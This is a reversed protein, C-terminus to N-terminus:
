DITYGGGRITRIIKKDTFSSLKERLRNIYVAVMNGDKNAGSIEELRKRPVANGKKRWLEGLILNETATLELLKGYIIVGGDTFSLAFKGGTGGNKENADLGHLLEYVTNKYQIIPFPRTLVYKAYGSDEDDTDKIFIIRDSNPYGRRLADNDLVVIDGEEIDSREYSVSLGVLESEYGLALRQLHGECLIVIKM